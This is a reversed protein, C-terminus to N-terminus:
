ICLIIESHCSQIFNYYMNLFCTNKEIKFKFLTSKIVHEILNM